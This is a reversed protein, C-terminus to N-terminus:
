RSQPGGVEVAAPQKTPEGPDPTRAAAGLVQERERAPHSVEAGRALALAGVHKRVPKGVLDEQVHRVHMDHERDRLAETAQDLPFSAQV